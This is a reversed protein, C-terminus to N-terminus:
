NLANQLGATNEINIRANSQEMGSALLANSNVLRENSNDQKGVGSLEDAMSANVQVKGHQSTNCFHDSKHAIHEADHHSDEKVGNDGNVPWARCSSSQEPPISEDGNRSPNSQKPNTATAGGGPSLDSEGVTAAGSKVTHNKAKVVDETDEAGQPRSPVGLMPELFTTWIKMVKDLQETTCVEGCSYKILQYLDEHIDPDPYEFELNPIIPRRNGAAIALLVDDEKRKKESIEKIEALLATFCM